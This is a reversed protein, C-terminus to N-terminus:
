RKALLPVIFSHIDHQMKINVFDM